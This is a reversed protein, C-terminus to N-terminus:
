CKYKKISTPVDVCEWWFIGKSCNSCGGRYRYTDALPNGRADRMVNHSTNEINM